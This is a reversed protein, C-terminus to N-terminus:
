YGGCFDAREKLPLELEGDVINPKLFPREERLDDLTPLM